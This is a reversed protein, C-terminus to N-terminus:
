LGTGLLRYVKCSNVLHLPENVNGSVSGLISQSESEQGAYFCPTPIQAWTQAIHIHETSYLTAM